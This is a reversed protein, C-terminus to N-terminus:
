AATISPQGAPNRAPSGRVIDGDRGRWADAVISEEEMICLFVGHVHDVAGPPVTVSIGLSVLARISLILTNWSALMVQVSCDEELFSEHEVRNQALNTYTPQAINPHFIPSNQLRKMLARTVIIVSSCRVILKALVKPQVRHPSVQTAYEILLCMVKRSYNSAFSGCALQEVRPSPLSSTHFRPCSIHM